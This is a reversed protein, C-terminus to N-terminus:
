GLLFGLAFGVAGGVVAGSLASVLLAALVGSGPGAARADDPVVWDEPIRLPSGGEDLEGILESM